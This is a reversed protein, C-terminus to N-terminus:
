FYSIQSLAVAGHFVLALVNDPDELLASVQAWRTAQGIEWCLCAM